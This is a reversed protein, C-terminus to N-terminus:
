TTLTNSAPASPAAGPNAELRPGVPGGNLIAEALTVDAALTGKNTAGQFPGKRHSDLLREKSKTRGECDQPGRLDM